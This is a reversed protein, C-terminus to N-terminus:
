SLDPYLWKLKTRASATTFRWDATARQTNRRNEWAAIEHRLTEENPLYPDLCQGALVSLEIEVMNLWSAHHPTYHFELRQLIRRAEAPAFAEYLAAPTHTNLNDQVVRILDAQPFFGEALDRMCHAFDIKTRQETVKVSRWGALPQFFMFLNRTGNRRYEYDFREPQGPKVPLPQRTEAVLQVLKEDFCVVPRQPDYPEAYLDLVEEMRWVFEAGPTPICWRKRLWPKLAHHDLERRVTEDSVQAVVRLEILQDALLQTTWHQYGAPPIGQALAILLAAGEDTLQRGRGCRRQEHLAYDLNGEVFRQRTRQVTPVSTYLVTSIEQDPRHEASLLLIRARTLKRAAHQGRTILELLFAREEETLDVMYVKNM